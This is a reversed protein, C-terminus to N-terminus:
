YLKFAFISSANREISPLNLPEFLKKLFAANNVSISMDRILKM